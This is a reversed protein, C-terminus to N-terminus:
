AAAEERRVTSAAVQDIIREIDEDEIVVELPGLPVREEVFSVKGVFAVQKNLRVTTRNGDHGRFLVARASDRIHQNRIIEELRGLSDTRAVFGFGEEEIVSEPFLNLIARRVKAPDETPFLRTRITVQPM